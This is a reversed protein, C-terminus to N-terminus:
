GVMKRGTDRWRTAPPEQNVLRWSASSEAAELQEFVVEVLDATPTGGAIEEAMELARWLRRKERLSARAEQRMVSAPRVLYGRTQSTRHGRWGLPPRQEAKLGHALMKSIYRTVGVGDQVAGAWQGVREADVRELWRGFIVEAFRTEDEVPVGKCLLNLHLAGRRQFEVQVFWEVPWWRRAARRLQRLHAYTDARTLHERATLVLWLTPAYEMADLTLMEVTEVVYLTQCYACLNTARCRGPVAEGTTENLLWMRESWRPCGRRGDVRPDCIGEHLDLPAPERAATALSSAAVAGAAGAKDGGIQGLQRRRTREPAPMSQAIRSPVTRLTATRQAVAPGRSRAPPVRPVSM